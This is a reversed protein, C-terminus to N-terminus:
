ELCGPFAVPGVSSPDGPLYPPHYPPPAQGLPALGPHWTDRHGLFFPCSWALLVLLLVLPSVVHECSSRIKEGANSGCACWSTVVSPSVTHREEQLCLQLNKSLFGIASIEGVNM